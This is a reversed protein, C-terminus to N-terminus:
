FSAVTCGGGKAKISDCFSTAQAPATFGATRLRWFVTGNHETKSIVPHKGAFLEPYKKALRQWETQADAESHLAALQVMAGGTAPAAKAAPQAAALLSKTQPVAPQAAAAPPTAQAARQQVPAAAPAPAPTAAAPAAALKAAPAPTQKAAPVTIHPRLAPLPQLEARVTAQPAPAATAATADAAVASAPQPAAASAAAAAAVATAAASAQEQAQLAQPAPTEAPPALASKKDADASLLPDNAGDAQLGGPNAPKERLPRTDAEIVPVTAHRHGTFSWVGVLVLLSTGIVSAFIVLRKTAPDMEERRRPQVRYSPAMSPMPIDLEDRAAM